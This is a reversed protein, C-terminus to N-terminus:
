RPARPRHKSGPSPMWTTRWQVDHQHIRPGPVPSKWCLRTAPRDQHECKGRNFDDIALLEGAFKHCFILEVDDMYIFTRHLRRSGPLTLVKLADMTSSYLDVDM